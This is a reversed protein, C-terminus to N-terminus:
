VYTEDSKMRAIVENTTSHADQTRIDTGIVAGANPKFLQRKSTDVGPMPSDQALGQADVLPSPMPQDANGDQPYSKVGAGGQAKFILHRKSKGRGDTAAKVMPSEQEPDEIDVTLSPVPQNVDANSHQPNAREVVESNAKLMLHKKSKGRGDATAEVTLSDQAPCEGDAVFRPLPVAQVVERNSRQLDVKDGVVTNARFM